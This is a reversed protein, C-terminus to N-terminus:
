PIVNDDFVMAIKVIGKWSNRWRGFPCKDVFGRHADRMKGM